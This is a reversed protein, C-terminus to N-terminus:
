GGTCFFDPRTAPLFGGAAKMKRFLGFAQQCDILREEVCWRLVRITGIVRNTGLISQALGRAKRDDCCISYGSVKCLAICETEGNGLEHTTLLDFFLDTPVINDDLFGVANSSQLEIIRSASGVQCESVVMPALWFRCRKLNCAIDLADANFLNIVSSSDLLFNM